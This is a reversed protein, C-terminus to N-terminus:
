KCQNQGLKAALTLNSVLQGLREAGPGPTIKDIDGVKSCKPNGNCWGSPTFSNNDRHLIEKDIWNLVPHDQSFKRAFPANSGIMKNSDNDGLTRPHQDPPNDWSIYHLDHNAVTGAYEPINCIVTHFYGEPSSVFNAYYMLLTRPLNDWGWICYEVFSRSLVMWASGTFLKFATPLEREPQVWILDEKKSKYFGPDVILPKGRKEAKWGLNSTHEIFNLSRNLASFTYILDGIVAFWAKFVRTSLIGQGVTLLEPSGTMLLGDQTVLPYDSASLNIFWDWDANRKLLIACAHLTNTVMSPGTYTVMNAKTIMYVNGVEAFIPDKKIRMALEIRETPPSELDLHVVYYNRPHYLAKLTRWLKNLDGKSGSVLYAFRPPAPQPPPASLKLKEEVFVPTTQNNTLVHAPLIFFIQSSSILGTNFFTTLLFICLMSSIVLPLFWKKEM